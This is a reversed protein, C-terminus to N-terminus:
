NNFLVNTLYSMFEFLLQIFCSYHEMSYINWREHIWEDVSSCKNKTKRKRSKTIIFSAAIFMQTCIKTHIYTRMERLYTGLLPTASDHITVGHKVSQSSDFTKWLPQVM